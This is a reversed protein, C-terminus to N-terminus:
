RDGGQGPARAPAAPAKEHASRTRIGQEWERLEADVREFNQNCEELEARIREASARERLIEVDGLEVQDEVDRVTRWAILNGLGLAVIAVILVLERVTVIPRTM